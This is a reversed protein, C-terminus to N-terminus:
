VRDLETCRGNGNYATVFKSFPLSGGDYWPDKVYVTRSAIDGPIFSYGWIVVYHKSQGPWEVGACVVRGNDIQSTIMNWKGNMSAPSGPNPPSSFAAGKRGVVFLAPLVNAIHNCEPSGLNVCCSQPNPPTMAVVDCLRLGLMSDFLNGVSLAVAAWCLSTYPRQTEMVFANVSNEM